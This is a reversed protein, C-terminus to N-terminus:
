LPGMDLIRSRYIKPGSHFSCWVSHPLSKSLTTKFISVPIIKLRKGCSLPAPPAHVPKVTGLWAGRGKTERSGRDETHTPSVSAHPGVLKHHRHHSKFESDLATESSSQFGRPVSRPERFFYLTHLSKSTM